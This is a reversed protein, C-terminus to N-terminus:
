PKAENRLFSEVAKLTSKQIAFLHCNSFTNQCALRSQTSVIDAHSIKNSINEFLVPILIVDTRPAKKGGIGQSKALCEELYNLLRTQESKGSKLAVLAGNIANHWLHPKKAALRAKLDRHALNILDQIKNASTKVGKEGSKVEAIWYTNNGKEILLIDFGKKISSEEMNFFPGASIINKKFNLLLVHSLLEGIMGIKTTPSKTDYRRLFEKVTNKYSYNRKADSKAKSVGHCISALNKRILGKLEDNFLLVLCSCASMDRNKEFVIEASPKSGTVM